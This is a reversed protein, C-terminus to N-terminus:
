RKLNKREWERYKAPDTPPADSTVRGGNGKLTEVPAPAATLKKSEFLAELRGIERAQMLPNLQKLKAVETPNKGLYYLIDAAKESELVVDLAERIEDPNAVAEIAQLTTAFDKFSEAGATMVSEVRVQKRTQTEIQEAKKREEARTKEQQQLEQRVEWKTVERLYQDYSEFDEPKPAGGKGARAEELQREFEAREQARAESEAKAQRKAERAEYALAALRKDRDSKDETSKDVEPSQAEDTAATAVEKVADPSQAGEPAAGVDPSGQAVESSSM